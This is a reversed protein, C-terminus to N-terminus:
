GVTTSFTFLSDTSVPVGECAYNRYDLVDVVFSDGPTVNVVGRPVAIPKNPSLLYDTSWLVPIRCLLRLSYV